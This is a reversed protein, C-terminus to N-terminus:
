MYEVGRVRSMRMRRVVVIFVVSARGVVCEKLRPVCPWAEGEEIEDEEDDIIEEITVAFRCQSGSLPSHLGTLLENM